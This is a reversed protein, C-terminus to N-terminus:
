LFEVNVGVTIAGIPAGSSDTVTVSVQSQYTQTSEDFEIESIHMAGAGVAYTQQWKAEDGQWYDSTVDSTAVNLGVRDMVIIETFLGEAADRAQVLRASVPSRVVSDILPHEAAGVQARWEGDLRVADAEGFAAHRENQAKIADILAPDAAIKAIRDGALATLEADFEGAAAPAAALLAAGFAAAAIRTSIKFDRRM